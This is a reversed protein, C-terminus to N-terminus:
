SECIIQATSPEYVRDQTPATTQFYPSATDIPGFQTPEAQLRLCVGAESVNYKLYFCFSSYHGYVCYNYEKTNNTQFMESPIDYNSYHAKHPFFSGPTNLSIEPLATKIGM